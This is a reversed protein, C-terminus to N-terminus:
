EITKCNKYDTGEEKIFSGDVLKGKRHKIVQYAGQVCEDIDLGLQDALITLVIVSDGIADAQELKDGRIIANALEGIEESLKMFQKPANDPNLLGKPEAWDLIMEKIM